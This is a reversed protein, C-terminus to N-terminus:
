VIERYLSLVMGVVIFVFSSDTDLWGETFVM